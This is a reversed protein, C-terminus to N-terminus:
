GGGNKEGFHRVREVPIVGLTATPDLLSTNEKVLFLPFPKEPVAACNGTRSALYRVIDGDVGNNM